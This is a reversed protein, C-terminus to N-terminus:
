PKLILNQTVSDDLTFSVPGYYAPAVDAESFAIVLHGNQDFYYNVDPSIQYFDGTDNPVDSYFYTTDKDESMKEKMQTKIDDSIKTIYDYSPAFLEKLTIVKGSRKDINYYRVQENGDGKVITAYVELTFWTNSDTIVQYSVDLGNYGENTSAIDQQFTAVLSDIYSKTSQNLNQIAASTSASSESDRKTDSATNKRDKFDNSSSAAPYNVNAKNHPDDYHYKQITIVKIYPGIIPLQEMAYAIKPSLNPLLLFVLLLAAACSIFKTLISPHKKAERKNNDTKAKAGAYNEAEEIYIDDIQNIAKLLKDDKMM